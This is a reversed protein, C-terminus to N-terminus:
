KGICFEAFIRDLLTEVDIHGTLRGIEQAALRIEETVVELARHIGAEAAALHATTRELRDRHRQRTVLSPEGLSVKARLKQVIARKLAEIGSGETCSTTLLKSAPRPSPPLALDSKNWVEIVPVGPAPPSPEDADPARIWIVVDAEEVAGSARAMGAREIPDATHPRLGATDQLIVPLGDLNLHVEIVDRTTGPLPSVIAADKRALQNLLSSKGANPPGALVVRLGSRLREGHRGRELEAEIEKRLAAMRPTAEALSRASVEAEDIFDIAAELRALIGIIEKRWGGFARSAGGEM